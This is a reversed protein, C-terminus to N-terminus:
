IVHEHIFPYAQTHCIHCHIRQTYLYQIHYNYLFLVETSYTELILSVIHYICYMLQYNCLEVYQLVM